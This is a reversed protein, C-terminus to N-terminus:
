YRLLVRKWLFLVKAILISKVNCFLSVQIKIVFLLELNLEQCFSQSTFSSIVFFQSLGQFM